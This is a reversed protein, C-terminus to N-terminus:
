NGSLVSILTGMGKVRGFKGGARAIAIFTVLLLILIM